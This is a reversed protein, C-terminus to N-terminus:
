QVRKGGFIVDAVIGETIVNEVDVDLIMIAILTAVVESIM